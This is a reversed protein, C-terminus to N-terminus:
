NSFNTCITPKITIFTDRHVTVHVDFHGRLQLFLYVEFYVGCCRIWQDGPLVTPVITHLMVWSMLRKVHRERLSYLHELYCMPFLYNYLM